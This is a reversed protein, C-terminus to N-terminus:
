SLEEGYETPRSILMYLSEYTPWSHHTMVEELGFRGFHRFRLNLLFVLTTKSLRLFWSFSCRFFLSERWSAMPMWKRFCPEAKWFTSCLTHIRWMWRPPHYWWWVNKFTGLISAAWTLNQTFYCKNQYCELFCYYYTFMRTLGICSYSRIHYTAVM